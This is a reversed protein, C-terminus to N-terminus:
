ETAEDDSLDVTIRVRPNYRFARRDMLVRDTEPDQVRVIIEYFGSQQTQVTETVVNFSFPGSQADDRELGVELPALRALVVANDAVFGAHTKVQLDSTGSVALTAARNLGLIAVTFIVLSVLVEVLTFGAEGSCKSVPRM